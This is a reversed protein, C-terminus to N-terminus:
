RIQDDKVKRHPVLVGFLGPEEILEIEDEPDDSHRNYVNTFSTNLIDQPTPIKPTM